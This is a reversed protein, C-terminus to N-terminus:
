DTESPLLDTDGSVTEVGSQPTFVSFFGNRGVVPLLGRDALGFPIVHDAIGQTNSLRLYWNGDSPRFIAPTDVGDGDWDGAVL